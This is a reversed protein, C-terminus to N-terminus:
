PALDGIVVWFSFVADKGGADAMEAVSVQVEQPLHQLQELTLGRPPEGAVQIGRFSAGIEREAAKIIKPDDDVLVCCLAGLSEMLEKLKRGKNGSKGHVNCPPLITDLGAAALLLQPITSSRVAVVLPGTSQSEDPVCYMYVHLM